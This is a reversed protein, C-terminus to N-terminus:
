PRAIHWVANVGDGTVDGAAVDKIFTYLPMGKYAWQKMGDARDIITYDGEAKDEATAALIPWNVACGGACNSVGEADKDFTYLTMGADNTLMAGTAGDATMAPEAFAAGVSLFLAVASTMLRNM